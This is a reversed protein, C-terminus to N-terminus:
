EPVELNELADAIITRINAVWPVQTGHATCGEADNVLACHEMVRELAEVLAPLATRSLAIARGDAVTASDAVMGSGDATYASYIEAYTDEPREYPMVEWPGPTAADCVARIRSLTTGFGNNKKQKTM